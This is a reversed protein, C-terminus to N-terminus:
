HYLTLKITRFAIPHEKSITFQKADQWKISLPPGRGRGEAGRLVCGTQGARTDTRLPRAYRNAMGDRCPLLSLFFVSIDHADNSALCAMHSRGNTSPGVLICQIRRCPSPWM